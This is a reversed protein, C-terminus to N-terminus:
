RGAPTGSTSHEHTLEDKREGRAGVREGRGARRCSSRIRSLSEFLSLLTEQVGAPLLVLLFLLGSQGHGWDVIRIPM